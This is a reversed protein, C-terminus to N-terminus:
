ALNYAGGKEISAKFAPRDHLRAVWAAINPFPALRGFARAVEGVFSLQVDAGTFGEGLIYDHGALAQEVYGLHNAIESDIRDKLPAGAEGLRMVYLNIMLPLMASGEAYHLWELYAEHALTGPAPAFRGGGHKRVLYDVIAGSEAIKLDGDEIVPSKGLPHVATLEPPALSTVADRQYPRIEYPAGLEELLWLIRQSRSNNLHHVVVM